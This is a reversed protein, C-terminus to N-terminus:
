EISFTFFGCDSVVCEEFGGDICPINVKDGVKPYDYSARWYGGRLSPNATLFQDIFSCNGFTFSFESFKNHITQFVEEDSLGTNRLERIKSVINFLLTAEESDM